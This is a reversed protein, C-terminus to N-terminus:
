GQDYDEAQEKPVISHVMTLECGGNKKKFTLELKSPAFGKPWETTKWEQVVKKGPVLELVKGSIYGDM